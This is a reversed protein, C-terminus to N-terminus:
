QKILKTSHTTTGNAVKIFYIGASFQSLNVITKETKTYLKHQQIGQINYIVVEYDTGKEFNKIFVTTTNSTPNPYVSIAADSNQDLFKDDVVQVPKVKTPKTSATRMKSCPLIEAFYNGGPQVTFGPNLEITNGARMEVEANSTVTVNNVPAVNISSIVRYDLLGLGPLTTNDIILDPEYVCCPVPTIIGSNNCIINNTIAPHNGTKSIVSTKTDTGCDNTYTIKLLYAANAAYGGSTKRGDWFIPDVIGNTCSVSYNWIPQGLTTFIEVIAIEANNLNTIELPATTTTAGNHNPFVEGSTRNCDPFECAKSLRFDDLLVYPGDCLSASETEIVIWDYSDSPATFEISIKYWEGTPHSLLTMSQNLIQLTNSTSSKNFYKSLDCRNNFQNAGISYEMNNKRLYVNLDVGTSWDRLPDDYTRVYFQLRYTEGEEFKNDDFFKQQILEGPGMGMYGLGSHPMIDSGSETLRIKDTGDFANVMYWDPSHLLFQSKVPLEGSEEIIKTVTKMDSEWVSLGEQNGFNTTNWGGSYTYAKPSYDDVLGKYFPTENFTPQDAVANHILNDQGFSIWGLFLFLVIVIKNKSKM